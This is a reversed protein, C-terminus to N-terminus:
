IYHEKAKSLEEILEDRLHTPSILEAEHGFSLIWKIVEYESQAMFTLLINEGENEIHQNDSWNREKIYVCAPPFFRVQVKFPDDQRAMGFFESEEPFNGEDHFEESLYRCTAWVKKMRHVALTMPRTIDVIGKDNVAWGRVYLGDHFSILRVPVFSHLRYEKNLRSQYEIELVQLAVQAMVLLQISEEHHNYNISGKICTSAMKKLSIGGKETICAAKEIARELDKGYSSPLLHKIFDRCVVLQRLENRSLVINMRGEPEKLKYWNQGGEKSMQLDFGGIIEIEDVLRLITQRSCEFKEALQKLSYARRGFLLLSFLSIAKHSSSSTSTRRQSKSM